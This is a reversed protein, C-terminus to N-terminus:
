EGYWFTRDDDRNKPFSDYPVWEVHFDSFLANNSRAHHRPLRGGHGIGYTWIDSANELTESALLTRSPNKVLRLCSPQTDDRGMGKPPLFANVAYCQRYVAYTSTNPAELPCTFITNPLFTGYDTGYTRKPYAYSWLGAVSFWYRQYAPNYTADYAVICTWGNFDEMYLAHCIGVQKLNGLCRAGGAQDKANKLAPLLMAALIAIIAIVVLLEILTFINKREERSFFYLLISKM